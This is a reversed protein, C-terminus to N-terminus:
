RSTGTRFSPADPTRSYMAYTMGLLALLAAGLLSMAAVRRWARSKTILDVADDCEADLEAPTYMDNTTM